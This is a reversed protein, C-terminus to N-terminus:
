NIHYGKEEMCEKEYRIRAWRYKELNVAKVTIFYPEFEIPAVVLLEPFERRSKTEAASRCDALDRKVAGPEADERTWQRTSCATAVCAICVALLVVKVMEASDRM